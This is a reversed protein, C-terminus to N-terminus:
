VAEGPLKKEVLRAVAEVTQFHDPQIDGRRLEIGFEEELFTVTLVVGLSDIFWDNLLDTTDTLEIGEHPYTELFYARIKSVIMERDM